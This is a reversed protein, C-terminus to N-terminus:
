NIIRVGTLPEPIRPLRFITDVLVSALTVASGECNELAEEGTASQADRDRTKMAKMTWIMMAIRKQDMVQSSEAMV